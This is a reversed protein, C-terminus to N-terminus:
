EVVAEEKTEETEETEIDENKVSVEKKNFHIIQTIEFTEEEVDYIARMNKDGDVFHYFTYKKDTETDVIPLKENVTIEIYDVDTVKIFIPERNEKTFIRYDNLVREKFGAETLEKHLDDYAENINDAGDPSPETEDNQPQASKSDEDEEGKSADVLIQLKYLYEEIKESSLEKDKYQITPEKISKIYYVEESEDAQFTIKVKKDKVSFTSFHDETNRKLLQFISWGKIYGPNISFDEFFSSLLHETIKGNICLHLNQTENFKPVPGNESVFYYTLQNLRM